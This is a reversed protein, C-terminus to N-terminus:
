PTPKPPKVGCNALQRQTQSLKITPALQSKPTGEPAAEVIDDLYDVQACISKALGNANDNIRNLAVAGGVMIVIVCCWLGIMSWFLVPYRVWIKRFQNEKDEARRGIEHEETRPDLEDSM